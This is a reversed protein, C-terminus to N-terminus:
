AFGDRLGQRWAALIDRVFVQSLPLGDDTLNHYGLANPQDSNDKFVLGWCGPPVPGAGADVVRAPTGWVPSFYKNVYDDLAAILATWDVGLPITASNVCAITPLQGKDFAFTLLGGPSKLDATAAAARTLVFM